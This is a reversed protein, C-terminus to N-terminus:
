GHDKPEALLEALLSPAVCDDEFGLNVFDRPLPATAYVDNKGSRAFELHWSHLMTRTDGKSDAPKASRGARYVPDHLLPLGLAFYAHARIQHTRGTIPVFAILSHGDHQAIVRWRTIAAKGNRDPHMWWGLAETSTKDLPMAIEGAEDEPAGAVIGLYVKHVEREAFASGFRKLAGSNRAMLLCGSTDRDLRHVALPPRKFGFRMDHALWEVGVEGSKTPTVPMGAPKDVVLAEGDLFLVQLPSDYGAESELTDRRKDFNPNRVAM